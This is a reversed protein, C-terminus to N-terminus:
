SWDRTNTFILGKSGCDLHGCIMHDDSNQPPQKPQSTTPAQPLSASQGAQTNAGTDLAIESTENHLPVTSQKDASATVSFQEVSTGAGFVDISSPFNSSFQENLFPPALQESFTFAIDSEKSPLIQNFEVDNLWESSDPLSDFGGLPLYSSIGNNMSFPTGPPNFLADALLVDTMSLLIQGILRVYWLKSIADV